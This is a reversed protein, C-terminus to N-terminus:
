KFILPMFIFDVEQDSFLSCQPNLCWPDYTAHGVLDKDEALLDVVPGAASGWWNKEANILDTMAVNDTVRLGPKGETLNIIQNHVITVNTPTHISTGVNYGVGVAGLKADTIIKNKKILVDHVNRAVFIGHDGCNMVENELATSGSVGLRICDGTAGVGDVINNTILGGSKLPKDDGGGIDGLAIGHYGVGHVYNGEVVVSFTGPNDAVYIAANKDTPLNTGTVENFRIVSNTAISFNLGDGYTDFVYNHEVIVDTVKKFQLGEDGSSGHIINYGVYTGISPDETALRESYILDKKGNRFELGKITVNDAKIVLLNDIANKGDIIAEDASGPTRAEPNFFPSPDETAQPGLITLSKTVNITSSIEYLGAAVNITDGVSAAGIAAQITNYCGNTGGPNVCLTAAQAQQSPLISFTLVGILLVPLIKSILRKKM